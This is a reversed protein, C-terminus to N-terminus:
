EETGQDNIEREMETNTEKTPNLVWEPKLFTNITHRIHDYCFYVDVGHFDLKLKSVRNSQREVTIAKNKRVLQCMEKYQKSNIDRGYREKFRKFAHIKQSQAKDMGTDKKRFRRVLNLTERFQDGM